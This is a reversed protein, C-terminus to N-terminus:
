VKKKESFFKILLSILKGNELSNIVLKENRIKKDKIFDDRISNIFKMVCPDLVLFNRYM